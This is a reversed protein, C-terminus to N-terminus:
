DVAVNLRWEYEQAQEQLASIIPSTLTQIDFMLKVKIFMYTKVLELNSGEPMYDTWLDDESEISFGNEPGVGLQHLITFVSNIDMIIEPDFHDYEVGPGLQKKVSNLISGTIESTDAM